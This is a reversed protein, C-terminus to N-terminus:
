GYRSMTVPWFRLSIKGESAALFFSWVLWPGSFEEIIETHMHVRQELTATDDCSHVQLHSWTRTRLLLDESRYYGQEFYEFTEPATLALCNTKMMLTHISILYEIIIRTSCSSGSLCQAASSPLAWVGKYHKTRMRYWIWKALRPKYLNSTTHTQYIMRLVCLSLSPQKTLMSSTAHWKNCIDSTPACASADTGSSSARISSRSMSSNSYVPTLSGSEAMWAMLSISGQTSALIVYDWLYHTDAQSCLSLEGRLALFTKVEGSPNSNCFELLVAILITIM